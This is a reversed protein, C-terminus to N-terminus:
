RWMGRITKPGAKKTAFEGARRRKSQLISLFKELETGGGVTLSRREYLIRAAEACLLNATEEDVEMTNTAQTSATSGLASLTDQGILRLQHGRPPAFDLYLQQTSDDRRVSHQQAGAYMGDRVREADGFYLWGRGLYITSANATSAISVV